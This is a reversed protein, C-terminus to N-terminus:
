RHQFSQFCMEVNWPKKTRIQLASAMFLIWFNIRCLFKSCATPRRRAALYAIQKNQSAIGPFYSTVMFSTTCFQHCHQKNNNIKLILKAGLDDDYM